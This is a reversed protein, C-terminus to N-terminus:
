QFRRMQRWGSEGPHPPPPRDAERVPKLYCYGNRSCSGRVQKEKGNGVWDGMMKTKEIEDLERRWRCGPPPQQGHDHHHERKTVLTNRRGCKRVPIPIADLGMLKGVVGPKCWVVREGAISSPLKDHRFNSRRRRGIGLEMGTDDNDNNNHQILLGKRMMRGQNTTSMATSPIMNNIRFSSRYMADKGDLSFRPYQNLANRASRLIDSSNVCSRRHRVEGDLVRAAREELELQLIMDELTPQSKEEREHHTYNPSGIVIPPLSGQQNATSTSDDGNCSSRFGKKMKSSFANKLLFFSLDKM